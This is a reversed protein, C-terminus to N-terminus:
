SKLWSFWKNTAKNTPIAGLQSEAGSRSRKQAVGSRLSEAESDSFYAIHSFNSVRGVTTAREIYTRGDPPRLILCPTAPGTNSVHVVSYNDRTQYMGMLVYYNDWAQHMGSM